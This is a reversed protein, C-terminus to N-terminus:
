GTTWFRTINMATTTIKEFRSTSQQVAHEVRPHAIAVLGKESGSGGDDGGRARRRTPRRRRNARFFGSPATPPSKM